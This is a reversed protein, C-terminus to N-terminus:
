NTSKEKYFDILKNLIDDYTKGKEGVSNLKRKTSRMVPITTTRSELELDLDKTQQITEM